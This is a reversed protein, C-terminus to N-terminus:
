HQRHACSPCGRFLEAVELLEAPCLGLATPLPGHFFAMQQNLLLELLVLICYGGALIEMM